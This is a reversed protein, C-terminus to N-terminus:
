AEVKFRSVGSQLGATVETLQEIALNSQRLSEVTQQAAEGLQALAESIQQAGLSQSQMGENVTEFSPTLTQVKGIIETLQMSVQGVVEAGRRVEESFKDMGMVGASVASQMEKVMQEIDSTAVATQDALRRIETAVVAFGRGYEGAKEAEIAANLSLLNTQDAVKTITTVVKNINGAKESLVALRANISGSAEMIQKMTAEMRTLGTQGSAALTATEEAVETVSKMAKVLEKATASIEKSTAGIETTTSFIENATAQQQKATAAIETGSTRVQIGSKQVQGILFSLRQVMTALANGVTDKASQPKIVVALNGAAVEEAGRAMAQLSGTMRSFSQALVGVEDSRHNTGVTVDLDGAAIREAANSIEGLPEAIIRNLFVVLLLAGALAVLGLIALIWIAQKTQEEAQIRAYDALKEGLSRMKVYRELQAGIALARAEEAKGALILPILQTERVQKFEDRVAVWERFQAAIQPENRTRETLSDIIRQNAQSRENLVAREAEQQARDTMAMMSLLTARQANLDSELKTIAVTISYDRGVELLGAVAVVLMVIFLAIISGFGLSLKTRTKLNIFWTM